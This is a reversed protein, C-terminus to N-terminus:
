PQDTYEKFRKLANIVTKNSKSGISEKTGGQDYVPIVRSIEKKLTLWGMHEEDLVAEIAKIYSYVTSPMGSDTETSYGEKILFAEYEKAVTDTIEVRTKGKTSRRQPTPSAFAAARAREAEEKLAKEKNEKANELAENVEDQLAGSVSLLGNQFSAPIALEIVKGNEFKVTLYKGEKKIIEGEGFIKHIVTEM